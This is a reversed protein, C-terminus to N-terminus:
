RLHAEFFELLRDKFDEVLIDKKPHDGLMEERPIEKGTGPDIFPVAYAAQIIAQLDGSGVAVISDEILEGILQQRVRQHKTLKKSM